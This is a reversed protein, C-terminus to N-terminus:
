CSLAQFFFLPYYSWPPLAGSHSGPTLIRRSFGKGVNWCVDMIPGSGEHRDQIPDTVHNSGPM